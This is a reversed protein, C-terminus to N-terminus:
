GLQSDILGIGVKTLRPVHRVERDMQVIGWISVRETDFKASM